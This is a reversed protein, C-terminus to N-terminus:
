VPNLCRAAPFIIRATLGKKPATEIEFEAGNARAISRCIALGGARRDAPASLLGALQGAEIGPGNDAVELILGRPDQALGLRVTSGAGGHSLANRLLGDVASWLSSEDCLVLPGEGPGPINRQEITVRATRAAPAALRAIRRMLRAVDVEGARLPPPRGSAGGAALLDDAIGRLRWAASLIDSAHAAVADPRLGEPNERLLGAFGTVAEIPARMDHGLRLISDGVLGPFEGGGVEPAPSCFSFVAMVRIREGGRQRWLGIRFHSQGASTLLWAEAEASGDAVARALLAQGAGPELFRDAFRGAAEGFIATDTPSRERIQGAVDLAAMALPMASDSGEKAGSTVRLGAIQGDPALGSFHRAIPEAGGGQAVAVM